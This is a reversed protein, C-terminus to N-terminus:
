SYYYWGRVTSSTFKTGHSDGLYNAKELAMATAPCSM